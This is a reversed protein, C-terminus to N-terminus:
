TYGRIGHGIRRWEPAHWVLWGGDNKPGWGLGHKPGAHFLTWTNPGISTVRHRTDATFTARSGVARRHLGSAGRGVAKRAEIYWGRVVRTSSWWWPHNHLRRDVDPAHWQHLYWGPVGSSDGEPTSTLFWRRMYPAGGLYITVSPRTFAYARLVLWVAFWLARTM